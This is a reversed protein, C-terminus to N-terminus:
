CIPFLIEGRGRHILIIRYIGLKEVPLVLALIPFGTDPNLSVDVMLFCVIVDRKKDPFVLSNASICCGINEQPIGIVIFMLFFSRDAKHPPQM